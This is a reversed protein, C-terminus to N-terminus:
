RTIFDSTIFCIGSLKSIFYMKFDSNCSYRKFDGSLYSGTVKLHSIVGCLHFIEIVASCGVRHM